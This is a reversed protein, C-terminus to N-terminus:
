RGEERPTRKAAPKKTPEKPAESTEEVGAEVNEPDGEESPSYSESTALGSDVLRKALDEDEVEIEQGTAARVKPGCFSKTAKIKM